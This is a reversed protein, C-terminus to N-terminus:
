CCFLGGRPGGPGLSAAYAYFGWVGYSYVRVGVTEM